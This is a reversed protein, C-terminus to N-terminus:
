PMFCCEARNQQLDGELRLGLPSHNAVEHRPRPHPLDPRRAPQAVGLDGAAIGRM